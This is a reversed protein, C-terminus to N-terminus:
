CELAAKFYGKRFSVVQNVMIYSHKPSLVRSRLWARHLAARSPGRRELFCYRISVRAEAGRRPPQQEENVCQLVPDRM